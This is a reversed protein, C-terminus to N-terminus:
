PGHTRVEGGAPPEEPPAPSAAETGATEPEEPTEESPEETRKPVPLGLLGRAQLCADMLYNRTTRHDTLIEEQLIRPETVAIDIPHFRDFKKNKGPPGNFYSFFSGFGGEIWCVVVPTQPREKLIHWVGQGFQKLWRDAKRRLLGEPFIVVCEGRDLAAVAQAIEPVDRRFTSAEVRIAEALHEMAWRISPLDYFVSTMMPILKRPVVKAILLPDLYCSHNAVVLVPGLAPVHPLGPGHGRIRYMPWLVLEMFQEVGDRLFWRWCLVALLLAGGALVWLAGDLNLTPTGTGLPFFALAALGIGLANAAFKCGIAAPLAGKPLAWLFGGAAPVAIPALFFGALVVLTTGPGGQLAMLGLVVVLGVAGYPIYGVIRRPHGQVLTLLAGLTYGASGRLLLALIRTWDLEPLPYVTWALLCGAALFATASGTLLCRRSRADGLLFGLVPLFPWPAPADNGIAVRDDPLRALFAGLFALPKLTLIIHLPQIPDAFLQPAYDTCAVALLLALGTGVALFGIMRHPYGARSAAWHPAWAFRAWAMLVLSSGILLMWLFLDASSASLYWFALISWSCVLCQLLFAPLVSLLRGALPALVLFPVVALALHGVAARRYPDDGAVFLPELLFLALLADASLGALHSVWFALGRWPFRM